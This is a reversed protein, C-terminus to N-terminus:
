QSQPVSDVQVFVLTVLVYDEENFWQVDVEEISSGKEKLWNNVIDDSYTSAAKQLPFIFTKIQTYKNKKKTM